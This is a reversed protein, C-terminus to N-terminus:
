FTVSGREAELARYDQPPDVTLIRLPPDVLGSPLRSRVFSENNAARAGGHPSGPMPRQQHFTSNQKTRYDMNQHGTPTFPYAVSPQVAFAPENTIQKTRQEVHLVHADLDDDDDHDTRRSKRVLVIVLIGLAILAVGGGIFYPANGM